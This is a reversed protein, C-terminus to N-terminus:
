LKSTFGRQGKCSMAEASVQHTDHIRPDLVLIVFPSFTGLHSLRTMTDSPAGGFTM